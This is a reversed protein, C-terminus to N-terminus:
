RVVEAFAGRGAALTADIEAPGHASSLFGCEFQSPPLLIGRALMGRFFAAFRARNATDADDWSRVARETFFVTWMSGVRQVQVPVACQAAAERLGAELRAGAAELREWLDPQADLEDLVALAAAVAIPHAAYTGAQYVPGAPAIMNMLDRRGGYAALPMGGGLVKGLAMLDPTVGYRAAAGGPGIRLGTVVEDFILLAGHKTCRERLGALFGPLPPVCGMNAAVPEVIVAAIANPSEAFIRDVDALDNYRAVRTDRAAGPTVGPSDPIGLTAAGSGARILFSDGHGHYCGDFKLIGDRGTAARALRATSMGAETGTVVLRVMEVAPMRAAIRESLEVERPSALGFVLGDALTREVANVIRAHAHGLFAAGWAGIWDVFERGDADWVRAGRARAVMVPATGVARFARVPSHVGGPTVRSAREFLAQTRATAFSTVEPIGSRPTSM